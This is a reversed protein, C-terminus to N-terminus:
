RCKETGSTSTPPPQPAAPQNKEIEDVALLSSGIGASSSSSPSSSRPSEGDSEKERGAAADITCGRSLDDPDGTHGDRCVCITEAATASAGQDDQDM